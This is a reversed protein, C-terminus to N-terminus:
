RRFDSSRHRIFLQVTCNLALMVLLAERHLERTCSRQVSHTREAISPAVFLAHTSVDPVLITRLLSMYSIVHKHIGTHTTCVFIVGVSQAQQLLICESPKLQLLQQDHFLYTYRKSRQGCEGIM